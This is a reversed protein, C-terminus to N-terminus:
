KKQFNNEQKSVHCLSSWVCILLCKSSWLFRCILLFICLVDVYCYYLSLLSSCSAFLVNKVNQKSFAHICSTWMVPGSGGVCCLWLPNASQEIGDQRPMPPCGQPDRCPCGCYVPARVVPHAHTAWVLAWLAFHVHWSAYELCDLM